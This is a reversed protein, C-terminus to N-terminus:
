TAGRGFNKRFEQSRLQTAACYFLKPFICNEGSQCQKPPEVENFSFVIILDIHQEHKVEIKSKGEM